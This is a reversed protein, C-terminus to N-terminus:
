VAVGKHICEISKGSKNNEVIYWGLSKIDIKRLIHDRSIIKPIYKLKLSELDHSRKREVLEKLEAAGNILKVISEIWDSKIGNEIIKTRCIRWKEGGLLRIEKDQLLKLKLWIPSCCHPFMSFAFNRSLAHCSTTALTRVQELCNSWTTSSEEQHPTTRWRRHRFARWTRARYSYSHLRTLSFHLVPFRGRLRTWAVKWDPQTM